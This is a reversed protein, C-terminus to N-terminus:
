HSELWGNKTMLGSSQVAIMLQTHSLVRDTQRHTLIHTQGDAQEDMQGDMKSVMLLTTCLINLINLMALTFPSISLSTELTM